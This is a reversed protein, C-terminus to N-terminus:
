VWSWLCWCFVCGPKEAYAHEGVCAVIVDAGEAYRRLAEDRGPVWGGDLTVGPHYHVETHGSANFRARIGELFTSGHTFVSNRHAGQRNPNPNPNPPFYTTPPDSSTENVRRPYTNTGGNSAMAQWAWGVRSAWVCWHISWGGTQLGLSDCGRGTVFIRRPPRRKSGAAPPSDLLPLFGRRNELLVISERALQLAAAQDAASGVSAEVAPFDDLMHLPDDLLGVWEKLALIRAVSADLRSEPVAGTKVQPPTTTPKPPPQTIHITRICVIHTIM